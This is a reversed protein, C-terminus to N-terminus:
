STAEQPDILGILERLAPANRKREYADRAEEHGIGDPTCWPCDVWGYAPKESPKTPFLGAAISSVLRGLTTAYLRQTDEDLVVPIRKGRDDRRVFWYQAEASTASALEPESSQLAAHAYVPLQLKTGAAVPDDELSAFKRASGTKIDTVLLAGDRTRDVKDASGRLRVVGGPVAVEVPPKGDMGFDLESAVVAADRQARWADDDDLMRELDVVVRALEHQWLQPHGTVGRAVYEDAKRAAITVLRERDEASWPEGYSPLRASEKVLEEMVEHVLNGIELTSVQVVEEPVELPEVRLLRQLLFRHPCTGYTELATPSVVMDSTAYAPLGGVGSLDGDYRTFQDSTRAALLAEASEVVPDTWGTAAHRARVRWEQETAPEQTTLADAFSSSGVLQGPVDGHQDWKTAALEDDGTIARLTPLLFRSPLRQTSRRLDGRPFSVTSRAGAQLALLLHRHQDDIRDQPSRLEGATAARVRDNLLADQRPRGPYADEALGVVFVHDLDLGVAASLPGVFIGEGFRGVRPLASELELGLVEVLLPLDADAGGDLGALGRLVSEIVVAAYQEEAPMGRVDEARGYLDRFLDAAWTALARWGRLAAGEALRSRLTTVFSLLEVAVDLEREISEVRSPVPDTAARETELRRRLGELHHRLRPEWDPGAVIGAARSVREWTAVRVRGGQLDGVPAEALATFTAGRPLDTIGLELVGLFGRAVAREHVARTSPGNVRLGAAALQEHLVRAYPSPSGYLVAIRHAPHDAVAAVVRRVVCRVEDDSDSAHLVTTAMPEEINVAPADLGLQDLSRLVPGDARPVSTLGAIVRVEAGALLSRGFAAEAQTLSQPLYLVFTGLHDLSSPTETVLATAAHLLGPVDYWDRALGETVAAHLRVLDDSLGNVGRVRQLADPSVDRLERHASALARVTAPHQKVRECRGADRDLQARWAAAVVPGTAPRRPHLRHAVLQEALRPLTTVYLGAVAGRGDELGHALHRRAVIGALNNPVLVTVPAMPDDRKVESVVSRLRDIAPRGYPTRIVRTTM